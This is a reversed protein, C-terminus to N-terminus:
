RQGDIRNLFTEAVLAAGASNLHLGDLTLHLGREASERDIQENSRLTLADRVVHLPSRPVYDSIQKGTLRQAFAARLDLFEVGEYYAAIEQIARSTAELRDAWGNGPDEGRLAPSVAIVRGANQCLLDLISRYCARFEGIGRARRQGLMTHFARYLRSARASIDNVGVWLFAVDFPEDFSLGALRRRLSVVTDNGRGLNILTDNPLRNCLMEFYSSGPRGATLSDGVFAIRM